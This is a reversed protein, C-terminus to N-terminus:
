EKGFIKRIIKETFRCLESKNNIIEGLLQNYVSLANQFYFSACSVENLMNMDWKLAYRIEGLMYMNWSIERRIYKELRWKWKNWFYFFACSIEGLM